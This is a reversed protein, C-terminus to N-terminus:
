FSKLMELTSLVRVEKQGKLRKDNSWIPCSFKLALAFYEIDNPDPSIRKAESRLLEYEVSSIIKIKSLVISLATNLQEESYTSKEKILSRYKEVEEHLFDPSVFEFSSSFLLESTVGESSILAAFVINADIVVRM